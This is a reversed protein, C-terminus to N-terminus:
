SVKNKRKIRVYEILTKQELPYMRQSLQGYKDLIEDKYPFPMM